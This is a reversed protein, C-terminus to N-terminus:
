LTSGPEGRGWWGVPDSRRLTIKYAGKLSEDGVSTLSHSSHPVINQEQLSLIEWRNGRRGSHAPYSNECANPELLFLVAPGPVLPRM